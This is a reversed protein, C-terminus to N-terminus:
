KDKNYRYIDDYHYVLTYTQNNETIEISVIRGQEDYAYTEKYSEYEKLNNTISDYVYRKKQFLLGNEGYIFEDIHSKLPHGGDYVKKIINGHEDYQYQEIYGETKKGDYGDEYGYAINAQLLQNNKDYTFSNTWTDGDSMQFYTKLINGNADREIQMKCVIRENEGNVNSHFTAGILVGNSDYECNLHHETTEVGLLTLTDFFESLEFCEGNNNYSYNKYVKEIVQGFADIQTKTVCSLTDTAITFRSLYTTSDKYDGLEKLLNYIYKVTENYSMVQGNDDALSQSPHEAWKIVRQYKKELANNNNSGTETSPNSNNSEAIKKIVEIAEQYKEAELLKILDDYKEYKNNLTDGCAVLLLCMVVILLLAIIKM